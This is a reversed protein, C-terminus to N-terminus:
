TRGGRELQTETVSHRWRKSRRSAGVIGSARQRRQLQREVRLYNRANYGVTTLGFFALLTGSVPHSRSLRVGGAMMLPGILVVDLLRIWQAKIEEGVHLCVYDSMM